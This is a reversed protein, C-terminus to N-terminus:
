PASDLLSQVRDHNENRSLIVGCISHGNEVPIQAETLWYNVKNQDFLAQVQPLQAVTITFMATSEPGRIVEIPKNKRVDTM